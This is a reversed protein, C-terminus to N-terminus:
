SGSQTAAHTRLYELVERAQDRTLGVNPMQTMHEALLQKVVPHKTYMEEPALIMNMIFAPSRRETVGGLSPGVYRADFKHCAGCKADFLAQGRAAMAQDVPGLTVPETVPGIGHEQQFATLESGAPPAAGGAPPAPQDAGGGCAAVSFLVTILIPLRM